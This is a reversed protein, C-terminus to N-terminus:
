VNINRTKWRNSILHQIELRHLLSTEKNADDLDGIVLLNEGLDTSRRWYRSQCKELKNYKFINQLGMQVRKHTQALSHPRLNTTAELLEEGLVVGLETIVGGQPIGEEETEISM